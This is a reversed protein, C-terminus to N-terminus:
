DSSASISPWAGPGAAFRTSLKTPYMSRRCCARRIARICAAEEIHQLIGGIVVREGDCLADVDLEQASELFKDILVPHDPSADVAQEIYGKLSNAEYVIAMARGGLVYSPRVLVPFGSSKPWPSRETSMPRRASPRNPSTVNACSLASASVIRRWTSREPPTGLIKVGARHLPLALKLPTQGGFQLIAGVPQEREVIALVEELAVPEFYLRDATDYDTSVTEPNCNVM